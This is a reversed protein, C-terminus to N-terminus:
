NAYASVSGVRAVGTTDVVVLNTDSKHGEVRSGSALALSCRADEDSDGVLPGVVEKDGVVSASRTRKKFERFRKGSWSGVPDAIAPVFLLQIGCLPTKDGLSFANYRLVESPAPGPSPM